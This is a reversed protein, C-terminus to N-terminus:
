TLHILYLDFLLLHFSFRCSSQMGHTCMSVVVVTYLTHRFFSSKFYNFIIRILVM